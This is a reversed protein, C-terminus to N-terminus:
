GRLPAPGGTSRSEGAGGAATRVHHHDAEGAREPDQSDAHTNERPTRIVFWYIWLLIAAQLPARILLYVPGWAHGGMPIQQVAAYANVPFFLVLVLLAVWGALKRTGEFLFGAALAFELVGALYVLSVRRPVWPPLMEAMPGTMIFHGVGTFVFLATLGIAGAKRPDIERHMLASLVRAVAYPGMMLILMLIPITM